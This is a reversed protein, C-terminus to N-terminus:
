QIRSWTNVKSSGDSNTYVENLTQGDASMTFTCNGYTTGTAINPSSSNFQVALFQGTWTLNGTSSINKWYQDGTKIYNKNIADIWVASTTSPIQSIIGTNGNITVIWNNSNKWVGDLSYNTQTTSGTVTVTCQATKGGDATTVTITASGAAVATVTGYTVTAVSSNSSSWGVDKNTADSPSVTATLTETGGVVLSISSKNLTVGSVPVNIDGCAAMSFGIVAVLAIIGFVKILNKM